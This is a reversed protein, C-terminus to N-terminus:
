SAMKGPIGETWPFTARIAVGNSGDIELRGGASRVRELMGKLGSGTPHAGGVGNDEVTLVLNGPMRRLRIRCVTARAHRMVNTVAERLVLALVTELTPVM